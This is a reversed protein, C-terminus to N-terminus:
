EIRYNRRQGAGAQRDHVAEEFKRYPNDSLAMHAYHRLHRFIEIM